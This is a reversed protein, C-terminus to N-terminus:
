KFTGKVHRQRLREWGWGVSLDGITRIVACLSVYVQLCGWMDRFGLGGRRSSPWIFFDPRTRVLSTGRDKWMAVSHAGSRFPGRRVSAARVHIKGPTDSDPVSWPAKRAGEGGPLFFFRRCTPGDHCPWGRALRSRANKGATVGYRFNPRLLHAGVLRNRGSADTLQGPWSM